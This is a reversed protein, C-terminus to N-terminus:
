VCVCVLKIGWPKDDEDKEAVINPRACTNHMAQPKPTCSESEKV